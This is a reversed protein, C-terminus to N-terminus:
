SHPTPPEDARVVVLNLISSGWHSVMVKCSVRTSTVTPRPPRSAASPRWPPPSRCGWCSAAAAPPSASVPSPPCQRTTSDSFQLFKTIVQAFTEDSCFNDERLVDGNKFAITSFHHLLISTTGFIGRKLFEFSLFNIFSTKKSLNQLCFCVCSKQLHILSAVLLSVSKKWFRWIHKHSRHVQITGTMITLYLLCCFHVCQVSYSSTWDPLCESVRFCQM